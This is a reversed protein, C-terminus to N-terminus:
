HLGRGQGCTYDKLESGRRRGKKRAREREGGREGEEKGREGKETGGSRKSHLSRM